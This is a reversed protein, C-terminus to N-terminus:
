QLYLIFTMSVLPNTLFASKTVDLRLSSSQTHTHTHTHTHTCTHAHIHSHTLPFFAENQLKGFIKRKMCHMRYTTNNKHKEAKVELVKM